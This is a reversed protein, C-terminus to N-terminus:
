CKYQLISFMQFFDNLRIFLNLPLQQFQEILIQKVSLFKIQICLDHM